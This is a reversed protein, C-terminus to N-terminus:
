DNLGKDWYKNVVYGNRVDKLVYNQTENSINPISEYKNGSEGVFLYKSNNETSLISCDDVIPILTDSLTACKYIFDNNEQLKQLISKISGKYM